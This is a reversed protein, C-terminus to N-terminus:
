RNLPNGKSVGKGNIEPSSQDRLGGTEEPFTTAASARREQESEERPKKEGGRTPNKRNQQAAVRKVSSLGASASSALVAM